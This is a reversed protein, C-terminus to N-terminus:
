FPRRFWRRYAFMRVEMPLLELTGSPASKLAARSLPRHERGEAGFVVDPLRAHLEVRPIRNNKAPHLPRSYLRSPRATAGTGPTTHPARHRGVLLFRDRPPDSVQQRMAIGLRFISEPLEVVFPHPPEGLCPKLSIPRPGIVVGLFHGEAGQV